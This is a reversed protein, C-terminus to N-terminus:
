LGTLLSAAKLAFPTQPNRFAYWLVVAERRFSLFRRKLFALIALPM